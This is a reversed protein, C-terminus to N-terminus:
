KGDEVWFTMDTGSSGLGTQIWLHPRSSVPKSNQVYIPTSSAIGLNARATVADTAGTGGKTVSLTKQTGDSNHEVSLFDNLIDGWTDNDGGPIPLRIM